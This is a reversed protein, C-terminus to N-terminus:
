KWCIKLIINWLQQTHTFAFTKTPLVFTFLLSQNLKQRLIPVVSIFVKQTWFQNLDQWLLPVGFIWFQDAHQPVKQTNSNISSNEYISPFFLSSKEQTDCFFLEGVWKSNSFCALRLVQGSWSSKKQKPIWQLTSIKLIANVTKSKSWWSLIGFFSITNIQNSPSTSPLILSSDVLLRIKIQLFEVFYM